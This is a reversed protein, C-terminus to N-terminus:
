TTPNQWDCIQGQLFLWISTLSRVKTGYFRERLAATLAPSHNGSSRDRTTLRTRLASAIVMWRGLIPSAITEGPLRMFHNTKLQPRAVSQRAKITSGPRRRSVDGLREWT